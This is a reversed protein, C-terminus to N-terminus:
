SDPPVHGLKRFRDAPAGSQLWELPLENQNAPNIWCVQRLAAVSLAAGQFLERVADDLAAVRLGTARAAEILHADKLMAEKQKEATTAQELQGRFTEDTPAEVRDVKKRAFMSRRWRRAFGSQHENWEEEVAPTFVLRHCVDGAVLLFDRCHKATPHTAGQPGAAQAVSADIVLAQSRVKAM